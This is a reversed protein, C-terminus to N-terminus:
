RILAETREPGYVGRKERIVSPTAIGGSMLIKGAEEITLDVPIVDARPVVLVWGTVPTPTSPLFVTVYEGTRDGAEIIVKSSVFALTLLGKRPYEILAVQDFMKKQPLTLAEVLQKVASYVARVLPTRILLIEGLAYLRSGLVNHTLVGALVILVLTALLGMGPISYGLIRDLLPSLLGDVKQFLFFLVYLTVVMPVTVLVGGTFHRRLTAFFRRKFSSEPITDM